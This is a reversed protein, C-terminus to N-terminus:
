EASDDIADPIAEHANFAYFFLSGAPGLIRGNALQYLGAGIYAASLWPKRLATYARYGHWFSEVANGLLRRRIIQYVGLATLAATAVSMPHVRRKRRRARAHRRASRAGRPAIEFLGRERAFAAIRHLDGSHELLISGTTPNAHISRFVRRM